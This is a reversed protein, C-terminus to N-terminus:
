WGLFVNVFVTSSKYSEFQRLGVYNIKDFKVGTAAWIDYGFYTTRNSIELMYTKMKYDNEGQVFDKHDFEFNPLGQLGLSIGTRQTLEYKFMILPIRTVYYDGPRPIDSRDKKYFRIKIGPSFIWNGFRKTYVIKNIMAFTNLSKEPQYTGDFMVGEIQNNREYKVHNEMTVSPIARIISNLNIRNVKSNKYELEDYYVDRTFRGLTTTIGPLLFDERMRTSVQMYVDRVNDQIEEYRYEAYFRGIGFFVYNVQFKLYDNYTRTDLGVGKTRMSGTIINVSKMPSYRAHIHYGKRDLDYPTDFKMDDERFDPINNNNYDNGFVFEDPDSDFLLFPEEYDPVANNNRNNDAVGDNDEDNGPFVGDPDEFSYMNQGFTRADFMTDPYMDEDDNDEILPM